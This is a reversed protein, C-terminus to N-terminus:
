DPTYPIVRTLNWASDLQADRLSQDEHKKMVIKSANDDLECILIDGVNIGLEMCLIDPLPILKNDGLRVKFSM